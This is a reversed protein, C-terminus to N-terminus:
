TAYRSNSQKLYYQRLEMFDMCNDFFPHNPNLVRKSLYKKIKTKIRPKSIECLEGQVKGIDFTDYLPTTDSDSVYKKILINTVRLVANQIHYIMMKVIDDGGKDDILKGKDDLYRFHSGESCSIPYQDSKKGHLYAAEIIKGYSKKLFNTMLFNVSEKKGLRLTLTELINDSLISIKGDIKPCLDIEDHKNSQKLINSQKLVTKSKNSNLQKLALELALTLTECQRESRKLAVEHDIDDKKAVFSIKKKQKKCVRTIHRTLSSKASFFKNCNICRFNTETIKGKNCSKRIHQNLNSKTSFYSGCADCKLNM